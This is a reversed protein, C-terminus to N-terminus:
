VRFLSLLLTLIEYLGLSGFSFTELNPRSGILDKLDKKNLIINPKQGSENEKVDDIDNEEIKSVEAIKYIKEENIKLSSIESIRKKLNSDFNSFTDSDEEGSSMYDSFAMDSDGCINEEKEKEPIDSTIKQKGTSLSKKNKDLNFDNKEENNNEYVFNNVSMKSRIEKINNKFAADMNSDVSSRKLFNDKILSFEEKIPKDLNESENKEHIIKM